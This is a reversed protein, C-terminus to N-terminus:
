MTNPPITASLHRNLNLDTETKAHLNTKRIQILVNFVSNQMKIQDVEETFASGASNM